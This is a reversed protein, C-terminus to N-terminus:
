ATNEKSYEPYTYKYGLVWKALFVGMFWTLATGLPQMIAKPGPFTLTTDSEYVMATLQIPNISPTPSGAKRAARNCDEIYGYVNRFFREEGKWQDTDDFRLSVVVETTSTNKWSHSQYPNVTISKGAPITIINGDVLFELEGKSIAFTESFRKHFHYPPNVASSPNPPISATMLYDENAEDSHFTLSAAGNDLFVTTQAATNTRKQPKTLISLM